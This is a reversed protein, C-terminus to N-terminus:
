AEEEEATEDEEEIVDLDTKSAGRSVNKGDTSFFSAMSSLAKSMKSSQRALSTEEPECITDLDEDGDDEVEAEIIAQSSSTVNDEDANDASEENSEEVDEPQDTANEVVSEVREDVEQEDGKPSSVEGFLMTSISKKM